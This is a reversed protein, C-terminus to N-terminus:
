LFAFAREQGSSLLRPLYKKLYTFDAVKWESVVLLESNKCLYRNVSVVYADVWAWDFPM